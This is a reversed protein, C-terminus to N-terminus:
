DESDRLLKKLTKILESQVDNQSDKEAKIMTVRKIGLRGKVIDSSPDHSFVIDAVMKPDIAEIEISDHNQRMEIKLIDGKISASGLEWSCLLHMVEPAEDTIVVLRRM